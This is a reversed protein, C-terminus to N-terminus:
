GATGSGGPATRTPRGAVLPTSGLAALLRGHDHGDVEDVAWGFARLKDALPELDNTDAVAAGQQLGNRDIVLVLNDAPAPQTAQAQPAAALGLAIAATAVISALSMTGKM